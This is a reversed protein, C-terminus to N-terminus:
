LTYAFPGAQHTSDKIEKLVLVPTALPWPSLSPSLLPPHTDSHYPWSCHHRHHPQIHALKRPARLLILLLWTCFYLSTALLSFFTYFFSFSILIYLFSSHSFSHITPSLYFLLVVHSTVFSVDCLEAIWSSKLPSFPNAGPVKNNHIRDLERQDDKQDEPEPIEKKTVFVAISCHSDM